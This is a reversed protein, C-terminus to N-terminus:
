QGQSRRCIQSVLEEREKNKEKKKKLPENSNNPNKEEEEALDSKYPSFYYLKIKM